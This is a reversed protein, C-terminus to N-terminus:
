AIKEGYCLKSVTTIIKLFKSVFNSWFILFLKGLIPSRDYITNKENNVVYKLINNM